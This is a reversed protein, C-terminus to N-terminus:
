KIAGETMAAIAARAHPIWEPWEANVRADIDYHRQSNGDIIDLEVRCIARAVREELRM